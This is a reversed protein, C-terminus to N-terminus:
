LKLGSIKSISRKRVRAVKFKSLLNFQNQAPKSQEVKNLKNHPNCKLFAWSFVLLDQPQSKGKIEEWNWSQLNVNKARFMKNSSMSLFKWHKRKSRKFNNMCNGKSKAKHYYSIPLWKTKNTRIPNSIVKPWVKKM